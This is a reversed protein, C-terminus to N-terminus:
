LPRSMTLVNPTPEPLDRAVTPVRAVLASGAAVTPVTVVPSGTTFHIGHAPASVGTVTSSGAGAAAAGPTKTGASGVTLLMISMGKVSVTSSLTVSSKVPLNTGNGWTYETVGARDLIFGTQAINVSLTSSGANVMMVSLGDSNYTSIAYFTSPGTVTTPLTETKLQTALDSFLYYQQKFQSPHESWAGQYNCDYCFWDMNPVQLTLGQTVEAALYLTGVFGTLLPVYPDTVQHEAANIESVFVGVNTCTSCAAKIYSRTANIQDPLSYVGRLNALLDADTPHAPGQLIYSHVSIGSIEHGDVSVVEEVWAKAYDATGMGAGLALFKASPDVKLIAAIYAHVSDAFAEPTPAPVSKDKWQSWPVGFHTWGSPANGLEWYAPQYDLTKVVYSAYYAAVAPDNIESPLQFIVHCGISKCLSIFESTSVKVKSTTGTDSTVVGSTYNLEDGLVGGPYRIYTAPTAAVAAADSSAFQQAPEVNVGWFSSSIATAKSFAGDVVTASTSSAFASLGTASGSGGAAMASLSLSTLLLVATLGVVLAAAKWWGGTM